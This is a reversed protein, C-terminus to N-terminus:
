YQHSFGEALVSASSVLSLVLMYSMPLDRQSMASMGNLKMSPAQPGGQSCCVYAM